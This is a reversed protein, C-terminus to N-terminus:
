SAGSKAYRIYKYLNALSSALRCHGLNTKLKGLSSQALRGSVQDHSFNCPSVEM